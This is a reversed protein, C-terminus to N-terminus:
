ETNDRTLKHNTNIYIPLKDNNHYRDYNDITMIYIRNSSIHTDRQYIITTEYDFSSCFDLYWTNWRVVSM